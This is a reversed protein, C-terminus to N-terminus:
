IDFRLNDQVSTQKLLAFEFIQKSGHPSKSYVSKLRKYLQYSMSLILEDDSFFGKAQHYRDFYDIFNVHITKTRILPRFISACTPAAPLIDVYFEGLYAQLGLLRGANAANTIGIVTDAAADSPSFVIYRSCKTNRKVCGLFKGACTKDPFVFEKNVYVDTIEKKPIKTCGVFYNGGACTHRRRDIVVTKKEKAARAIAICYVDYSITAGDPIENSFRVFVPSFKLLSKFM